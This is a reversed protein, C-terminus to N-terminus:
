GAPDYVVPFRPHDLPQGPTLENEFGETHKSPYPVYPADAPFCNIIYGWRPKSSM